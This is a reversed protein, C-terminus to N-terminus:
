ALSRLLDVTGAPGEVVLDAAELLSPPTEPGRVAVKLAVLGRERLRDLAAFADLDALDDGAYMVARLAHEGVLREVAAGKRPRGSPVLEVVMKGEALELGAGRAVPELVAVLRSRAAAADEAQRYHVALSAGKDEVWASPEVAAAREVLPLLGPALAPAAEQMGYLGEYRIGDVRVISAVEEARRGTIVAVLAFRAVIVELAERAGETPGALEPRAVIEALTGDLDLLVGARPARARFAELM